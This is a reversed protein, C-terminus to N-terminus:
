LIFSTLSKAVKMTRVGLEAIAIKEYGPVYTHLMGALPKAWSNPVPNQIGLLTGITGANCDVDMGCEALIQFARTMDGECFWLSITNAIMNPYTHIWNYTEMDKEWLKWAERPNRARATRTIAKELLITFETNQPLWLLSEELTTRPDHTTFALATLVAAHIGGFIGNVEHSVRGDVYALRAALDPRGPACLGAVMTRMQAGIWESFYNDRSGSEPPYIGQRLNELAIYEASWGFPLLTLWQDAIHDSTLGVGAKEAATLFAIEYTIDDNLTDVPHVYSALAKGYTNILVEGTYGELATGYAGGAIQGTWGQTIREELGPTALDIGAPSAQQFGPILAKVQEWTQPRQFKWAGQSPDKPAERLARRIRGTIREMEGWDGTAVIKLAEPILREAETVNYGRNGWAQIMELFMREPARSGPIESNWLMALFEKRQRMLKQPGSWDPPSEEYPKPRAARRNEWEYQWAKKM